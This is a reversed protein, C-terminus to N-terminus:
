AMTGDGQKFCREAHRFSKIAAVSVAKGYAVSLMTAVRAADIVLRDQEFPALVTKGLVVGEETIMLNRIGPRCVAGWRKQLPLPLSM